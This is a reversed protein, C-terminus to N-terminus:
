ELVKGRMERAGGGKRELGPHGPKHNAVGSSTASAQLLRIGPHCELPRGSISLRAVLGHWLVTPPPGRRGSGLVPDPM